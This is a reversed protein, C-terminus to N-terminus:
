LEEKQHSEATVLERAAIFEPHLTVHDAAKAVLKMFEDVDFAYNTFKTHPGLQPHHGEDEQIMKDKKEWTFYKLGRLRSLDFYCNPDECSYLEIVSGWGPQFLMHTLGAGHMGIFIDSNHSTEVQKLFPMSRDYVVLQVEYEGVTKMASILKYVPPTDTKM